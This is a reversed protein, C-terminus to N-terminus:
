AQYSMQRVGGEKCGSVDIAVGFPEGRRYDSALGDM